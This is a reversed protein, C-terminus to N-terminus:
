QDFTHTVAEPVHRHSKYKTSSFAKMQKQADMWQFMQHEWQWITQLEMSALAKPM